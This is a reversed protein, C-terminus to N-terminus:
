NASAANMFQSYVSNNLGQIFSSVSTNTDAVNSLYALSALEEQDAPSMQQFGDPEQGLKYPPPLLRPARPKPNPNRAM